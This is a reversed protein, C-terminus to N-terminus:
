DGLGLDKDFKTLAIDIDEAQVQEPVKTPRLVDKRPFVFMSALFCFTLSHMTDDPSGAGRLYQVRRAKEDYESFINLMDLAFPDEWEEWKPFRFVTGLRIANFVDTLVETRHCIYRGLKPDFAIKKGFSAAWQFKRVREHGYKRVLHTNQYGGNGYDVGIVHVNFKDILAEIVELSKVSDSDKGEFRKAYFISFKDPAWPFYGGLVVLTYSENSEGGWDIGMFVRIAPYKNPVKLYAAMSLSPLCNKIVDAQTIPRTGSDYSRGLCENFFRARPWNQYAQLLEAWKEDNNVIWPVILQPIRFGEYFVKKEDPDKPRIRDNLSVWAADPDDPYIREGCKECVPGKLGIHDESLINWFWSSPDKPTGHKKCPVGWENQTSLRSWYYEITNDNSKPTGSYTFIGHSSHAACAEIVPINDILIDQVEDISVGDAPIGRVRDANLFAFRLTVKSRNVFTKEFINATTRNKHTFSRLFPSIEIPEQIRDKSFTKTQTNSPSVYLYRFGVNLTCWSLIRNGLLTSKEVQRGAMLLQRKAGTDYIAPMYPRGKFSFDALGTPAPLKFTAATFESPTVRLPQIDELREELTLLEEDSVADYEFEGDVPPYALGTDVHEFDFPPM